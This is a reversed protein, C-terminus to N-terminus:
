AADVRYIEREHPRRFKVYTVARKTEVSGSVMFPGVRSFRLLEEIDQDDQAESTLGESKRRGQPEAEVRRTNAM